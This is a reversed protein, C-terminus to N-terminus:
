MTIRKHKTWVWLQSEKYDRLLNYQCVMCGSEPAFSDKTNLFKSHKKRKVLCALSKLVELTSMCPGLFM